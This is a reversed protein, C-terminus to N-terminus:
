RVYLPVAKTVDNSRLHAEVPDKKRVSRAPLLGAVVTLVGLNAILVLGDQVSSSM